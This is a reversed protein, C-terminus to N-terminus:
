GGLHARYAVVSIIRSERTIEAFGGHIYSSFYWVVLAIFMTFFTMEIGTVIGLPGKVLMPRKWLAMLHNEDNSGTSYDGSKRGLHLCVCGLAAIFLIPFTYLLLTAGQEGFYTSYAKARIDPLWILWFTNTPMMIWKVLHGLFVVTLLLRIAARATMIGEHSPSGNMVESDM